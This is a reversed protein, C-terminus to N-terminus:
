PEVGVEQLLFGISPRDTHDWAARRETFDHIEQQLIESRRLLFTELEGSALAEAATCDIAHSELVPDDPWLPQMRQIMLRRVATGPPHFLRNAASRTSTPASDEVIKAFAERDESELLAALDLLEGTELHRPRREALALLAIRSEDARADFTPPVELPRPREKRVLRLLEQVAVEEDQGPAVAAIGRRRLTREDFAGAGLTARWFWRALLARTRPNPDPHLYFFRALVDLLASNPLLRLHPIRAEARLFSLVRRLVPLGEAVAGELFAPDKERHAALSQTTDFGRMAQICTLLRENPLRGMALGALDAALEPLTSPSAAAGGFLADHVDTWELSVGAENIRYFIEEAIRSDETEILYLPIAYERIRSGAEFLTRRLAEDGRLEWGFVWETLRSGDLLHPLPVWSVPVEGSSQPVQFRQEQVDFYVTYPDEPDPRGPFPLPHALGAALATLRQQGDVVWWAETREPADVVLPGVSLRQAPADRRYFLLAGVPYGRYLSDFLRVVHTSKWKLGRQFRPIRVEGATIRRVLDEVKETRAEPKRPLRSPAPM